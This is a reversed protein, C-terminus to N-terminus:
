RSLYVVLDTKGNGTQHAKAYGQMNAFRGTGGTVAFQGRAGPALSKFDGQMSITGRARILTVVLLHDHKGLFTVSGIGHGVRHGAHNTDISRFNVVDGFDPRGSHNFDHFAVRQDADLFHLRVGRAANDPTAAAASGAIVAAAGSAALGAILWTRKM